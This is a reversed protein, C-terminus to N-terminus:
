SGRRSFLRALGRRRPATAESVPLETAAPAARAVPTRAPAAASDDPHAAQTRRLFDLASERRPTVAIRERIAALRAAVSDLDVRWTREQNDDAGGFIDAWYNLAATQALRNVTTSLYHRPLLEYVFSGQQSFVINSM